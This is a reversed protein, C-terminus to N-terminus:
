EARVHVNVRVVLVRGAGHQYGAALVAGDADPVGVVRPDVGLGVGRVLPSLVLVAERPAENGFARGHPLDLQVVRFFDSRAAPAAATAPGRRGARSRISRVVITADPHGGQRGEPRPRQHRGPRRVAGNSHPVHGAPQVLPRVVEPPVHLDPRQAGQRLLFPGLVLAVLVPVALPTALRHNAARAEDHGPVVPASYAHQSFHRGPHDVTSHGSLHLFMPTPYRSGVGHWMKMAM